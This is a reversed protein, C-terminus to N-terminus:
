GLHAANLAAIDGDRVLLLEVEPLDGPGAAARLMAELWASWERRSFPSFPSCSVRPRM